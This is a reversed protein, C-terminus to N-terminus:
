RSLLPSVEVVLGPDDGVEIAIRAPDSSGDGQFVVQFEGSEYWGEDVEIGGFRLQGDLWALEGARGPVPRYSPISDSPPSM